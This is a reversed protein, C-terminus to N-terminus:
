RRLKKPKIGWKKERHIWLDQEGSSMEEVGFSERREKQAEKLKGLVKEFREERRQKERIELNSKM